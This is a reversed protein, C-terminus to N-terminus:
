ESDPSFVRRRLIRFQRVANEAARQSERLQVHVIWAADLIRQDRVALGRLHSEAEATITIAFPLQGRTSERRSIVDALPRSNGHGRKRSVGNQGRYLRRVCPIM